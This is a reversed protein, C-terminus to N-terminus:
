IFNSSFNHADCGFAMYSFINQLKLKEQKQCSSSSPKKYFLKKYIYFHTNNKFFINKVQYESKRLEQFMEM